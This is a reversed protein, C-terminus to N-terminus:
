HEGVNERERSETLRTALHYTKDKRMRIMYYNSTITVKTCLSKNDINQLQLSLHM